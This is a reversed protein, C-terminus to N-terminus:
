VCNTVEFKDRKIDKIAESISYSPSFGAERLKNGNMYSSVIGENKDSQYEINNDNSFARNIELALELNTLSNGTGLNFVGCLDSRLYSWLIARAVDKVYIFERKAVSKGIVRLTEKKAAGNLFKSLMYGKDELGLVHACRLIVSNIGYNNYRDCLYECVLKSLGYFSAPKPYMNEKWPLDNQDSYVSISSLFVIKKSGVIRMAQLINETLIENAAYDRYGNQTDRGRMAALHIIVDNPQLVSALHEISYDTSIYKENNRSLGIWEISEKDFLNIVEQGIFGSAGSIVARM